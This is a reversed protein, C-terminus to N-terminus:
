TTEREAIELMKRRAEMVHFVLIETPPRLEVIVELLMRRDRTPGIFLDPRRGGTVRPEDFERIWHLYQEIANLADARDIGHKDASHAWHIAM